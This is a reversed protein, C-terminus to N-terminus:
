QAAAEGAGLAVVSSVIAGKTIVEAEERDLKVAVIRDRPVNATVLVPDQARYRNLFPFRAAVARDLSWCLGQENVGRDAGRYVTVSEPLADLAAREGETMMEPAPGDPLFTQLMDTHAGINDCTSWHEGLLALADAKALGCRFWLRIITPLRSYSDCYRDMKECAEPLAIARRRRLFARREREFARPQSELEALEAPDTIRTLM